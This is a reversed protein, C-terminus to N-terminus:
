AIASSLVSLILAMSSGLDVIGKLAEFPLELREARVLSVVVILKTGFIPNSWHGHSPRGIGSPM